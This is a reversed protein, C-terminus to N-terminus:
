GADFDVIKELAESWNQETTDVTLIPLASEAALRELNAQRRKFHNVLALEAKGYRSLFAAWSQGRHRITSRVCNEIMAEPEVRLLVVRAGLSMLRRDIRRVFAPQCSESLLDLALYYHFSEFIFSCSGRGDSRHAFESSSYDDHLSKLLRLRSEALSSPCGQNAMRLTYCQSLYIGGDQGTFHQEQLLRRFLTSKGTGSVGEFIIGQFSLGRIGSDVESGEKAVSAYIQM